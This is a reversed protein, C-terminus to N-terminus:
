GEKAARLEAAPTTTVPDEQHHTRHTPARGAVVRAPTSSTM